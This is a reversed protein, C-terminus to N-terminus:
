QLIQVWRLTTIISERQCFVVIAAIDTHLHKVKCHVLLEMHQAISHAWGFIGIGFASRSHQTSPAKYAQSDSMVGGIRDSPGGYECGHKGKPQFVSSSLVM